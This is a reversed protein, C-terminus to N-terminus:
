RGGRGKKKKPQGSASSPTAEFIKKPNIKNDTRLPMVYMPARKYSPLTSDLPKVIKIKTKPGNFHPM